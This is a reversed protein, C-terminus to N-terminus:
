MTEGGNFPNFVERLLYCKLMMLFFDSNWDQAVTIKDAFVCAILTIRPTRDCVTIPLKSLQSILFHCNPGM